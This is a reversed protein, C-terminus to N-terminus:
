REYAGIDITGGLPRGTGKYDVPVESLARGKNVVPSTSSCSWNDGSAVSFQPNAQAGRDDFPTANRWATLSTARTGTWGGRSDAGWWCSFSGNSRWFVNNDCQINAIDTGNAKLLRIDDTATNNSMINNYVYVNKLTKTGRPMGGVDIGAYNRTGVVTNNYVKMDDCASIYIGRIENDVLVNSHIVGNKSGEMDIAGTRCVNNAVYNCRVTLPQGSDCWDWWMGAAKNGTVRNREMVGWSDTTVKVGGGHWAGNFDRWKNNAITNGRLLFNGHKAGQIGVDGNNSIVCDLVQAGNGQYYLTVGAFDCWQVDCRDLM